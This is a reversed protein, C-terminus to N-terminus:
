GSQFRIRYVFHDHRNEDIEVCVPTNALHSFVGELFGANAVRLLHVYHEADDVDIRFVLPDESERRCNWRSFNVMAQWLSLTRKIEWESFSPTNRSGEEGWKSGELQPYFGVKRLLKAMIHGNRRLYGELDSGAEAEVMLQNLREYSYISYWLAPQIETELLELDEKELQAELRERTICGKEVLRLVHNAVASIVIGKISPGQM